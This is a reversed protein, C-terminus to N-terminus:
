TFCLGQSAAAAAAAITAAAAADLGFGYYNYVNIDFHSCQFQPSMTTHIFTYTYPLQWM